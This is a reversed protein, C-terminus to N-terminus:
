KDGVGKIEKTILKYIHPLTKKAKKDGLKSAAEYYKAAVVLDKKVGVGWLYFRGITRNIEGDKDEGRKILEIYKPLLNKALQIGREYNIYEINRPLLYLWILVSQADLNNAAVAKEYFIVTKTKDHRPNENEGYLMALLLYKISNADDLKVALKEAKNWDKENFHIVFKAYIQETTDAHVVCVYTSLLLIIIKM